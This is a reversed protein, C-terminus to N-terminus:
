SNPVLHQCRQAGLVASSASRLRQEWKSSSVDFLSFAIFAHSTMTLSRLDCSSSQRFSRTLFSLSASSFSFSIPLRSSSSGLSDMNRSYTRTQRVSPTPSSSPVFSTKSSSLVAPTPSCRGELEPRLIFSLSRLSVIQCCRSCVCTIRLSVLSSTPRTRENRYKVM